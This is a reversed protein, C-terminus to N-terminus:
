KYPITYSTVDNEHFHDVGFYSWEHTTTHVDLYGLVYKQNLNVKYLDSFVAVTCTITRPIQWLKEIDILHLTHTLWWKKQYSFIKKLIEPPFFM